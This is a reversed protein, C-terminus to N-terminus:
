RGVRLLNDFLVCVTLPGVGGPTPTIKLSKDEYLKPDADGVLKGDVVATGADIITAGDQIMDHTILGPQGTATIIIDAAKTKRALDKTSEDCVEVEAGASRLMEAMPKGVLRGQGVVVVKQDKLTIGYSGLLWMIATPTAPDFDSKPGLGDVDKAPAIAALAEDVDIDDPLPLQLIIGTVTEDANLKKIHEILESTTPKDLKELRVDVFIEEAYRQKVGIYRNTPEDDGVQVIALTLKRGRSQSYHRQQIFGTLDSGSLLM